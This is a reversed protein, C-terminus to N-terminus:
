RARTGDIAQELAGWLRATAREMSFEDCMRQRARRGMLGALAPDDFLNVLHEGMGHVDGEEVLFGTDGHVVVDAIGMHRTAVVPLGTASAELVSVPTGEANGESDRISHQVFARASRMHAAVDSPSLAGAFLVRDGLGLSQCLVRCPDLMVGEGVMVLRAEPRRCALHHFALLVNQPAKKEVFRGVSLFVPGAQEPEGGIFANTDVGCPSWVIREPPAGLSELQRAMDRSVVVIVRATKFLRRYGAGFETLTARKYADYGHFHAVLPVDAAQCADMYEVAVPGFEALVVDVRERRLYRAVGRADIRKGLHGFETLSAALAREAFSAVPIDDKDRKFEGAGGVLWRTAPLHRLHDRIFTESIPMRRRSAICVTRKPPPLVRSRSRVIGRQGLQKERIDRLAEVTERVQPHTRAKVKVWAPSSTRTLLPHYVKGLDSRVGGATLSALQEDGQTGFDDPAFLLAARDGDRKCFEVIRSAYSNWLDLGRALRRLPSPESDMALRRRLLVWATEAPPRVVFIWKADPVLDQWLGTFLTARPDVIAWRPRTGTQVSLVERARRRHGDDVSPPSAMPTLWNGNVALMENHLGAVGRNVFLGVADNTTPTGLPGGMHIRAGALAHGVVTTGSFPTGCVFVKVPTEAPVEDRSNM